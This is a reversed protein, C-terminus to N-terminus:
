EMDLTDILRALMPPDEASLDKQIWAVNEYTRATGSEFTAVGQLLAMPRFGALLCGSISTVNKEFALSVLSRFGRRRAMVVLCALLRGGIAGSRHEEEVYASVEAIRPYSPRPAFPGLSCWGLVEGSKSRYVWAGFPDKHRALWAVRDARDVPRVFATAYIGPKMAQNYIRALADADREEAQRIM